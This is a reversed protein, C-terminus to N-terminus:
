RRRVSSSVTARESAERAIPACRDAALGLPREVADRGDVEVIARSLGSGADAANLTMATAAGDRVDFPAARIQAL